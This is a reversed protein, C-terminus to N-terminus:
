PLLLPDSASRPARGCPAAQWGTNYNGQAKIIATTQLRCYTRMARHARHPARDLKLEQV